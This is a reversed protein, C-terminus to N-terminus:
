DRRIVAEEMKITNSTADNGMKLNDDALVLINGAQVEDTYKKAQHESVGSNILKEHLEIHSDTDTHETFIKKVKDIFSEDENESPDTKVKVDTRKELDKSHDNNAFIIINKANYGKLELRDVVNVAEDKSPYSGIIEIAM